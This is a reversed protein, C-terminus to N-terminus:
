FRENGIRLRLGLSFNLRYAPYGLVEQYSKNLLNELRAFATVRATIHYGGALDVRAYGTNSALRSFTVPDLDRRRGLFFGDLHLDVREGIWSVNVAGSHKPRRLLYLGVERNPILKLTVFDIVDAAALLKSDTLTYHGSVNLRRSPRLALSLELGRARARDNNVFSTLVGNPTKIPGGFTAPDGVYAIQDRFRNEFFAAELRLRDQWFLQEIGAEFSRAREPKLGPHGLFFANPSFAEVLTPAKIGVGFSTRLKTAGVAENGPRAVVMSAVKPAVQTGFGITGTFPASGLSQLVNAFNAPLEAQNNEVRLGATLAFRAAIFFQNQVFAGINRREPAVRNRGAFGSDFVANEQEFEIGASLLDNRPLNVDSQYRVGRRKQHNNFFSVFDNFAFTTDPPTNPKTLDQAVPDLGLQNNEAYVFSVSQRWNRATQDELRIGTAIRRRRAREDPDVFYRATAGPVGLGSNESRAILRLNTRDNFRYGLSASGIRNQYDDNRDRGDTRLHTFSLAYDFGGNAGAFKAAQRNFAFSGGEATLEFEPTSSLGRRTIFQLVGSMADSGYLASSAGRVLEIREANDTTLDSLDFAGGADNLPIGDVFVKTYDSEGGRVFLSTVGGRRATQMVTVGPAARLADAVNVRQSRALESASIVFASAPTEALSTETRTASVLISDRIAAVQMKLHVNGSLKQAGGVVTMGEVEASIFHEGDPLTPVSFEGRENTFTERVLAGSQNRVLVRATKIPQDANDTVKGLTQAFAMPALLLLAFLLKAFLKM